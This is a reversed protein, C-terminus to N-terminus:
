RKGQLLKIMIGVRGKRSPREDEEEEEDEDEEEDEMEAAPDDEYDSEELRKKEENDTYSMLEYDCMSAVEKTLTKMEAVIERLRDMDMAM